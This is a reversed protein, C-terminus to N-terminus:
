KKGVKGLKQDIVIAPESGSDNGLSRTITLTVRFEKGPKLDGANDHPYFKGVHIILESANVLELDATPVPADWHTHWFIGKSELKAYASTGILESLGQADKLTLITDPGSGSLTASVQLAESPKAAADISFVVAGSADTSKSYSTWLQSTDYSLVPVGNNLSVEFTLGSLDSTSRKANWVIRVPQVTRGAYYRYADAVVSGRAFLAQAGSGTAWRDQTLTVALPLQGVTTSASPDEPNTPRTTPILTVSGTSGYNGQFVQGNTGSVGDYCYHDVVQDVYVIEDHCVPTPSPVPSPSPGPTPHPPPPDQCVRRTEPIHRTFEWHRYECACGQQGLGPYGSRGPAGGALYLSVNRLDALPNGAAPTYTVVVDAGDGGNGGTGAAGGSGGPAGQIDEDGGYQTWCNSAATGYAGNGGDQGNGGAFVYSVPGSGPAVTISQNGYSGGANGSIGNGGNAGPYGFMRDYAFATLSLAAVLVGSTFM